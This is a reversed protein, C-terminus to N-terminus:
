PDRTEDQREFARVKEILTTVTEEAFLERRLRCYDGEGWQCSAWFRAVRSPSLHEVLISAAERMVDQESEVKITV